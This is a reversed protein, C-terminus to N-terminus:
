NPRLQQTVIFVCWLLAKGLPTYSSSQGRHRAFKGPHIPALSMHRFVKTLVLNIDRPQRGTRHYSSFPPTNTTLVKCHGQQTHSLISLSAGINRLYPLAQALRLPSHSHSRLALCLCLRPNIIIPNRTKEDGKNLFGRQM